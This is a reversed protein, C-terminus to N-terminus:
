KTSANSQRVREEHKRLLEAMVVEGDLLEGRNAADVGIQIERRLEELRVQYLSDREQILRLGERIVETPSNYLGSSVKEQVLRELEPTLSVDM